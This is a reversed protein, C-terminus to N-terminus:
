ECTQAEGKVPSNRRLERKCQRGVTDLLGELRVVEAVESQHRPQQRQELARRLSAADRRAHHVRM